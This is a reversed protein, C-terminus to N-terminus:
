ARASLSRVLKGLAKWHRPHPVRAGARIRSCAALSLGAAAAIEALTFADLRPAIERKFWAEDRQGPHERAWSRNRRHGDSIAEARARNVAAGRRPDKGAATQAALAKRAAEIARLGHERRAKPMCEECHRRRRKLVPEGCIACATPSAPRAEVTPARWARTAYPRPQSAKRPTALLPSREPGAVSRRKNESKAALTRPATNKNVLSERFTQALRAGIPRLCERWHPLTLALEHTLPAAIRCIGNPLEGFDRATFERDELLDLLFADVDARIPEMADLALSDRNRQDAHLVGLRPDLGQALLALRTESELCAFLYNRMANIPSTAARPAGTLVSARSDCRLWRAPIRALDRERFRITVAKWASFHALAANAEIVRVREISDSSALSARLKDFERLDAGLRVLIRRQGDLKGAILERAITLDLGNTVALAQARRIPHGDYGFPLSHALVEGDRGIQVLAAGIARLWALAELTVYGAHGILVLRELGCGARDLTVSRRQRGIGDEVRLKGRSVVRLAIGYGDVVLVGARVQLPPYLSTSQQQM